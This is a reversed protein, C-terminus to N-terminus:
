ADDTGPDVREARAEELRRELERDPVDPYLERLTDMESILAEARLFTVRALRDSFTVLQPLPRFEVSVMGMFSTQRSANYVLAARLHTEREWKRASKM